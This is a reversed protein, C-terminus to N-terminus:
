KRLSAYFQAFIRVVFRINCIELTVAILSAVIGCAATVVSYMAGRYSYIYPWVIDSIILISVYNVIICLFDKVPDSRKKVEKEKENNRTREHYFYRSAKLKKIM